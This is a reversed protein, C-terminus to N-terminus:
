EGNPVYRMFETEAQQGLSKTDVLFLIRNMKGYVLLPYAETIATFTKGSGTVMQVLARPRNDAFSIQLNRLAIKQCERFGAADLAPFRKLNHRVTDPAVLWERLTEPQHFSFVSLSRYKEDHFNTFRTIQGTAEYAFRIEYDGDLYKFTSHAYRSSQGKVSTIGQGDADKKAEVVGAPRGDVFLAYDVPGTPFERVAVGSSAALDLAKMDQIAWGADELRRDIAECAIQEPTKPM